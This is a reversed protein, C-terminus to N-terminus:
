PGAKRKSMLMFTKCDCLVGKTVNHKLSCYFVWQLMVVIHVRLLMSAISKFDLM